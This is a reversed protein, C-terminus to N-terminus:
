NELAGLGHLEWNKSPLPCQVGPESNAGMALPAVESCDRGDLVMKAQCQKMGGLKRVEHFREEEWGM